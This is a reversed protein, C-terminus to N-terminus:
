EWARRKRSFSDFVDVIKNFYNEITLEKVHNLGLEIMRSRLGEEKYLMYIKDALEEENTPDFKLAANGLQEDTGELYSVAASCGTM